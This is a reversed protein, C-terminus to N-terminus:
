NRSWNYEELESHGIFEGSITDSGCAVKTWGETVPMMRVSKQIDQRERLIPSLVMGEPLQDKDYGLIIEAMKICFNHRTM